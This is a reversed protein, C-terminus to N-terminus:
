STSTCSFLGDHLIQTSRESEGNGAERKEHSRRERSMEALRAELGATLRIRRQEVDVGDRDRLACRTRDNRQVRHGAVVGDTVRVVAVDTAELERGVVANEGRERNRLHRETDFFRAAARTASLRHRDTEVRDRGRRRQGERVQRHDTVQDDIHRVLAEDRVRHVDTADNRARRRLVQHDLQERRVALGDAIQDPHSRVVQSLGTRAEDRRRKAANRLRGVERRDAEGAHV